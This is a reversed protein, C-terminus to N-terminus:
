SRIAIEDQVAFIDEIKRDFRESWLQYGDASGILEVTVRLRKGSKRVSGDLVARSTSRM